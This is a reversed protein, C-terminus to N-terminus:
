VEMAVWTDEVITYRSRRSNKCEDTVSYNWGRVSGRVLPVFFGEIYEVFYANIEGNYNQNGVNREQKLHVSLRSIIM